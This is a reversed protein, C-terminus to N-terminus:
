AAVERMTFRPLSEFADFVAEWNYTEWSSMTPQHIGLWKMIADVKHTNNPGVFVFPTRTMLAALVGHHYHTVLCRAGMQVLEAAWHGRKIKWTDDTAVPGISDPDKAWYCSVSADVMLDPGLGQEQAQALSVPDRVQFRAACGKVLDAAWQSMDCWLSNVIWVPIGRQKANFAHFLAWQSAPSDHHMSGEGNVVVLDEDGAAWQGLTPVKTVKLYGSLELEKTIRDVCAKSGAHWQSTDNIIVAHRM